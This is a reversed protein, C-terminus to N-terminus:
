SALSADAMQLLSAVGTITPRQFLEVLLVDRGFRARLRNQMQVVLLSHGGIDFFNDHRSVQDVKLLSRWIDAVEREIRNSPPAAAAQSSQGATAVPLAKRDVKGNPTLPFAPLEVVHAPVMYDPLTRAITARAGAADLPSGPAMTVFGM